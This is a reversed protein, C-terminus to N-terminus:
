KNLGLIFGGGEPMINAPLAGNWRKAIELKAEAEIKAVEVEVMKKRDEAAEAFAQAAEKEATAISVNKENIKAQALRDNEKNKIELESKFNNNIAEQIEKDEYSLGGILGFTSITLGVNSFFESLETKAKDVIQGKMQRAGLIAIKNTSSKPEGELDYKAFERSLIETAKSKVIKGLVKQMNGTPYNYLFKSTDKESVHASINIGVTFGISDLSEVNIGDAGEWVFTVPKRDVTIVRVTPIWKYDGWWRGTKAKKLPIYIRKAAVKNKELFDESDFKGQKLTNGELPIVYATESPTIEEYKDVLPPGIINCGTLMLAIVTSLVLMKIPKNRM